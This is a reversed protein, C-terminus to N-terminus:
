ERMAVAAALRGLLGTKVFLGPNNNRPLGSRLCCGAARLPLGGVTPLVRLREFRMSLLCHARLARMGDGATCRDCCRLRAPPNLGLGLRSEVMDVAPSRAPSLRCYLFVLTSM